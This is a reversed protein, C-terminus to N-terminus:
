CTTYTIELENSSLPEGASTLRYRLLLRGGDDGATCVFEDTRCSMDFAGQEFAYDVARDKGPCFVFHSRVAGFRKMDAHLANFTLTVTSGDEEAYRLARGDGATYLLGKLAQTITYPEGDYNDIRSCISIQVKQASSGPM